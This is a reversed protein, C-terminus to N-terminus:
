LRTVVLVVISGIAGVEVMWEVHGNRIVKEAGTFTTAMEPCSVTFLNPVVSIIGL